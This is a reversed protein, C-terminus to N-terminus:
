NSGMTNERHMFKSYWMHEHGQLRECKSGRQKCVYICLDVHIMYIMKEYIFGLQAFECVSTGQRVSVSLFEKYAHLVEKYAHFQDCTYM